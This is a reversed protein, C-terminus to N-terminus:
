SQEKTVPWGVLTRKGLSIRVIDQRTPKTRRETRTQWRDRLARLERMAEVMAKHESYTM